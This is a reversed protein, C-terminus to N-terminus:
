ASRSEALPLGIPARSGFATTRRTASLTRRALPAALRESVLIRRWEQISTSRPAEVAITTAVEAVALLGVGAVSLQLLDVRAIRNAPLAVYAYDAYHLYRRAQCLARGWDDLKAEIAIIGAFPDSAVKRIRGDARAVYGTRELDVLARLATRRGVPLSSCLVYPDEAQDGLAALVKAATTGLAPQLGLADRQTEGSPVLRAAVVDAVGYGSEVELDVQAFGPFVRPMARLLAAVLDRETAFMRTERRHAARVPVHGSKRVDAASGKSEVDQWTAPGRTTM